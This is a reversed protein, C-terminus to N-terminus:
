GPNSTNPIQQNLCEIDFFFIKKRTLRVESAKKEDEEKTWVVIQKGIVHWLVWTFMSRCYCVFMSIVRIHEYIASVLNGLKSSSHVVNHGDM